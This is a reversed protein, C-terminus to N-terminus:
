FIVKLSFQAQRATGNGIAGGSVDAITQGIRGFNLNPAPTIVGTFPNQTACMGPRNTVPDAALVATCIGTDPNAFNPHNLINFLDARFQLNIKETIPFNKMGSLDWQFFGPGRLYNRGVQGIVDGWAGNYGPEVQFADRNYSQTPWKIDATRVPQGSFDPRMPLGFFGSVLQVNTPLGSRTQVINSTQWGGLIGRILYSSGKLDPLNYILSATFNHRVDWDGSGRDINPDFPDSWGGFVNVLDDIEHSWSYNGEVIFRGIDKRLQVQLANYSSYLTDADLNESAYGSLPRAQTVANAPNLNIAAFDVGAQLHQVKNGVYNVTLVTNQAVEQQIGFLWNTSYPDRPHQPFISVNQTGAPLPPNPSPYTINAQFVNVNYSSYTPINGILGFGFQMPMYFLGGYGHIVTKGRGFPDYAFGVRPAFDHKPAEYPAQNPPLFTQSAFDFNQQRNQGERWVTNYDYRLGLNLTLKRNVRWDDQVYFDWNSNRIGVFGPFGIKGLVFPQDNELASVSGFYYTQQPRLWENLRNARIQTGFKFTHNAVSKTVSDFVEFVTFPTVQNFTNPGPLSGLDTFFGAFGVLPKPTNSNTDSYFRNISVSFENLLTPTFAHTEDIKGLQTRLAQPAVQGQNLGLTQDTISDNINYRFFVRDRDAINYDLRISGTDERLTTSLAAPDYVMDTNNIPQQTVPDVSQFGPYWCSQPPPNGSCAAPLPALQALVPQMAPVFQSRAYASLTHNLARISTIRQRVGEYNAFFFLKNRVLPGSFNGGFQNLRLPQKPVTPSNEFYDNADLADNRFFEFLTGHYANTGAKTIINMQPGLSRGNEASYGNNAFDIEQISDVSARTVHAAEGGETDLFGNIDGRSANQGDVTINLGTFINELGNVSGQFFGASGVSGPSIELFNSVDRGNIPLNSVQTSNLTTGATSSATDVTTATGTVEIVQGAAAVNMTLNVHVTAGVNLVIQQSTAQAFNSVDAAVVYTGFPLASATFNGGTDSQLTKKLGTEVNTVTVTAHPIVAGSSDTVSGAITGTDFQASLPLTFLFCISGLLMALGCRRSNRRGGIPHLNLKIEGM